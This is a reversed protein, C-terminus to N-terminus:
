QCSVTPKLSSQHFLFYFKLLTGALMKTRAKRGKPPPFPPPTPPVAPVTDYETPYSQNVRVSSLDDNYWGSASDEKNMWHCM